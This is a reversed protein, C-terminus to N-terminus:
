PTKLTPSKQLETTWTHQTQDYRYTTRLERVAVKVVKETHFEYLATLHFHIQYISLMSTVHRM